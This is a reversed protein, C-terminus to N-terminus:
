GLEQGPLEGKVHRLIKLFRCVDFSIIFRRQAIRGERTFDVPDTQEGLDQM